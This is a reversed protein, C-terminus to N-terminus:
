PRGSAVIAKYDNAEWATSFAEFDMMRVGKEPDGLMLAGSFGDMGIVAVVIKGLWANRNLRVIVPRGASIERALIDRDAKIIFAQLGREQLMRRVEELSYDFIRRPPNAALMRAIDDSPQEWYRLVAATVAMGPQRKGSGFDRLLVRYKLFTFDKRSALFSPIEQAPPTAPEAKRLFPIDYKACGSLFLLSALVFLLSTSKM